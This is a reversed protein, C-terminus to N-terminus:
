YRCSELEKRAATQRAVWHGPTAHSWIRKTVLLAMWLENGLIFGFLAVSAGNLRLAESFDGRSIALFARTMGCLCCTEQPGHAGRLANSAALILNEPLLYPAAIVALLIASVIWWATRVAARFEQNM